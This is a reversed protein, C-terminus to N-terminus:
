KKVLWHILVNAISVLLGVYLYVVWKDIVIAVEEFALVDIFYKAFWVIFINIVFTFLGVSLIMLPLSLIKLVPKVFSNLIGFILAAIVYGKFGGTILFDGKSIESIFYLAIGNAILHLILRRIM